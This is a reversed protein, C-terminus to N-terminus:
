RSQILVRFRTGLHQPHTLTQLERARSSNWDLPVPSQAFSEAFITNLFKEQTILADTTLGSQEGIKKLKTFNVHATIDQEGPNALVDSTQRHKHYGRLTGNSREPIFLEEATLGYDITMLKGARLIRAAECWWNAAAPSIEFIFDASLMKLFSDPMPELEFDAPMRQWALEGDILGVGWEFWKQKQPYWGLRHLPLADLFENSFIIGRVNGICKELDSLSSAWRVQARVGKLTNEQWKRRRESPELIWYQLKEFQAPKFTQFWNLVDRALKADHAGAEVIQIKSGESELGDLWQSFRFALLEGFLSGVSVSTFYHGRKGVSDAEQEYFGSNPCYLALEMFRAFSIVKDRHIESIIKDRVPNL